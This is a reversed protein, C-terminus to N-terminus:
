KAKNSAKLFASKQFRYEISHPVHLQDLRFIHRRNVPKCASPAKRVSTKCPSYKALISWSNDVGTVIVGHQPSLLETLNLVIDIRLSSFCQAINSTIQSM